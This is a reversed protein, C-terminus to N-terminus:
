VDKGDPELELARREHESRTGKRSSPEIPGAGSKQRVALWREAGLRGTIEPAMVPAPMKEDGKKPQKPKAMTITERKHQTAGHNRRERGIRDNRRTRPGVRPQALRRLLGVVIGIM